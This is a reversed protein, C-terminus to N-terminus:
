AGEVPLPDRLLLDATRAATHPRRRVGEVPLPDRLLLDDLVLVAARDESELKM